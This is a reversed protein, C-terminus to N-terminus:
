RSKRSSAPPLEGALTSPTFHLDAWATARRGEASAAIVAVALRRPARPPNALRVDLSMTGSTAGKEGEQLRFDAPDITGWEAGSSSPPAGLSVWQVSEIRATADDRFAVSLAIRDGAEARAKVTFDPLDDPLEVCSLLLATGPAATAEIRTAEPGVRAIVFRTGTGAITAPHGTPGEGIEVCRPGPRIPRNAEGAEVVRARAWDRLLDPFPAGVSDRLNDPGRHPSSILRSILEDRGVEDACWSLFDYSAGRPGDSRFLGAQYYDGVLLPQAEPRALFHLRRPDLNTRSFGHEDEVLYALGEDLWGEEDRGSPGSSRARASAAVAHAHEHALVTQLHPGPGLGSNLFMVDARNGFPPEVRRDFDSARVLGDVALRGGGLRELWSTMVVAFRGDGDVDDARGWRAAATPEVRDDFTSRVLEVVEGRVQGRDRRDAYIAVKSGVAVLEAQIPVYSEVRAPDGERVMLHFVRSPAPAPQGAVPGMADAPASRASVTGGDRARDVPTIAEDSRAALSRVAVAHPGADRDLVSVTALVRRPGNRGGPPVVVSVRGTRTISSRGLGDARAQAGGTDLSMWAVLVFAV